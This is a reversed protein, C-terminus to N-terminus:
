KKLVVTRKTKMLRKIHAVKEEPLLGGHVEDIGLQKGIIKVTTENDGSLMVTRIKTKKLDQILAKSDKRIVDSTGILGVIDSDQAVFFVTQAKKEM